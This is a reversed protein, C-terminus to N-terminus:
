IAEVEQTSLNLLCLRADPKTERIVAVGRKIMDTDDAVMVRLARQTPEDYNEVVAVKPLMDIRRSAM